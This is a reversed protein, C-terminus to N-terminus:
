ITKAKAKELQGRLMGTAVNTGLTQQITDTLNAM